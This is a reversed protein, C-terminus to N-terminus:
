VIKNQQSFTNSLLICLVCNVSQTLFNLGKPRLFNVSSILIHHFRLFYIGTGVGKNM